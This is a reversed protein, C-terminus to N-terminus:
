KKETWPVSETHNNVDQRVAFKWEIWLEALCQLAVAVLDPGASKNTAVDNDNNDDNDKDDDDNTNSSSSSLSAMADRVQRAVREVIDRWSDGLQIYPFVVVVPSNRHLTHLWFSM